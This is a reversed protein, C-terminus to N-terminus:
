LKLMHRILGLQHRRALRVHRGCALASKVLDSTKLCQLMSANQQQKIVAPFFKTVFAGADIRFPRITILFLRLSYLFMVTM